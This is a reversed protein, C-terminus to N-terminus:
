RNPLFDSMAWTLEKTQTEHWLIRKGDPSFSPNQANETGSIMEPKAQHNELDLLHLGRQRNAFASQTAARSYLLRKGDSRWALDAGTYNFFGADVQRKEGSQLNVLYMPCAHNSEGGCLNEVYSIYKGDPSIAIRRHIKQGGVVTRREGTQRDELLISRRQDGVRLIWRADPTYDMIDLGSAILAAAGTAADIRFLGAGLSSTAMTLLGTGDATWILRSWERTTIPSVIEREEGGPVTRVVFTTREKRDRTLRQVAVRKGDASWAAAGGSNPYRPLLLAPKAGAGTEAVYADSTVTRERYFFTGDASVGIPRWDGADPRLLEPEGAQKGERVAVRYLGSIGTRSSLFLLDGAATWGALTENGESSAVRLATGGNAPMVFLDSDVSGPTVPYDWAVYKGDPSYLFKPRYRTKYELSKLVRVSGDAVSVAAFESTGIQLQTGHEFQVLIEKGDPSWDTPMGWEFWDKSQRRVYITRLGAGDTGVVRIEGDNAGNYHWSALWKGDRSIAGQDVQGDKTDWKGWNTLTRCAGSRADIVAMNGNGYAVAGLLRGDTSVNWAYCEMDNDLDLKRLAMAPRELRGLKQRAQAAIATQDGFNKALDEYLKRAEAQGLREHCQAMRFMAQAVVGRDKPNKAIIRRYAAIAGKLDGQVQELNMAAKLQVEPSGQGALALATLFLPILRKMSDLKRM